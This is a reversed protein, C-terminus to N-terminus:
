SFSLIDGTLPFSYRPSASRAGTPTKWDYDNSSYKFVDKEESSRKGQSRQSDITCSDADHQFVFCDQSYQKHTRTERKVVIACGNMPPTLVLTGEKSTGVAVAVAGVDRAKWPYYYDGIGDVIKLKYVDKSLEECEVNCVGGTLGYPIWAFLGFQKTIADPNSRLQALLEDGRM